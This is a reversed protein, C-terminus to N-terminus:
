GYKQKDTLLEGLGALMSRDSLQEIGEICKELLTAYSIGLRPEILNTNVSWNNSLFYWVDYIDRNAKGMRDYMAILKHAAMDAQTMVTMPIGLHSKLEYSAGFNRKNIEVKINQGREKKGKYSLQFLLNFHKQAADQIKGYPELIIKM